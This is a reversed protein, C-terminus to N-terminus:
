RIAKLVQEYEDATMFKPLKYVMNDLTRGTKSTKQAKNVELYVVEYTGSVGIDFKWHEVKEVRLELRTKHVRAM